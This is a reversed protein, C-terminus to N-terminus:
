TRIWRRIDALNTPNIRVGTNAVTATLPDDHTTVIGVIKRANQWRVWIASGSHGGMIDHTFEITDPNVTVMRDYVRWQTNGGKDVPYGSLNTRYRRLFEDPRHGIRTFWGAKRGIPQRLTIVGYDHPMAARANAATRWAPPVDLRASLTFGYPEERRTRGPGNKGPIVRISTAYGWGHDRDFMCHAATLVKNPAVLTGTGIFLGSAGSFSLELCCIHRFPVARTDTVLRRDDRTPIITYEAGSTNLEWESERTPPAMLEYELLSM